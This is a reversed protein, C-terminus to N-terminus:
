GTPLTLVGYRLAIAVAHARNNARLKAYVHRLHTNVTAASVGIRNAIEKDSFGRAVLDLVDLERDSLWPLDIRTVVAEDVLERHAIRLHTRTEENM